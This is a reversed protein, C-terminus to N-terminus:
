NFVCLSGQNAFDHKLELYNPWKARKKDIKESDLDEAFDVDCPEFM